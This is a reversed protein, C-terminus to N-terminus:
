IPRWHTPYDGEKSYKDENEGYHSNLYATICLDKTIKGIRVGKPNYEPHIWIENFFIVEGNEITYTSIDQWRQAEQYGAIYAKPVFEDIADARGSDYNDEEYNISLNENLLIDEAYIKAKEEIM